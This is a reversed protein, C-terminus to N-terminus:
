EGEDLLGLEKMRRWLTTRSVGLMRAARTRNGAARELARRIRQAEPVESSPANVREFATDLTATPDLIEPPLDAVVLLPGDGVAYAYELVNMLERVNGPWAFAELARMADPAVREVVRGGRENMVEVLKETLLAVDGPRARLPPLYIPVVRLRYMLDARFTGKHVEERLARHTAAVIRVDVPIPERGGVPIVTHTQLVRLLKAQLELPIEAVEDLFLTGGSAAEFHGPTDRVAGTFAGRVHGFLESELLTPPLAACNIARFPGKARPSLDHIAQAALEKGTGTEGRVLISAESRAVREILRFVAKMSPDATWMGHFLEAGERAAGGDELVVLWGDEGLALTRVRILREGEPSPRVVVGRAPRKAALAEAIPRDSAHGCLVSPARAGLPVPGLLAEAAGTAGAIRLDADLVLAAGVLEAVARQFLDRAEM